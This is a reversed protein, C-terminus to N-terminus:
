FILRIDAESLGAISNISAMYTSLDKAYAQTTYPTSISQLTSAPPISSPTAAVITIPHMLKLQTPNLTSTPVPVYTPVTTPTGNPYFGMYSELAQNVESARVKIGRKQAEKQIIVNAVLYDLASQGLNTPQM